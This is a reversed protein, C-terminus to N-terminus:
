FVEYLSFDADTDAIENLLNAFARRRSRRPQVSAAIPVRRLRPGGERRLVVVAIAPMNSGPRMLRSTVHDLTARPVRVTRFLNRIVIEEQTIQLRTTFARWSAFVTPLLSLAVIVGPSNSVLNILGGFGIGVFLTATAVFVFMLTGGDWGAHLTRVESRLGRM